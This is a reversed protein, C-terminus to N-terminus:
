PSEGLSLRTLRDMLADKARAGEPTDLLRGRRVEDVASHVSGMREYLEALRYHLDARNPEIRSATQLAELALGWREQAQWLAAERQFLSSREASGTVFPKLRGLVDIAALARGASSLSAALQLGVDLRSPERALLRELAAIGEEARGLKFLVRVRVLQVEVRAQDEPSLADLLTMAKRADGLDAEHRVLLVEAERRVEDSPPFESAAQLLREAEAGKGHLILLGYSSTLPGPKEVLLREWAQTKEAIALGLPLSSWDGLRWAVKLEGLAQLPKGLRALAYAAAVHVRADDPRLFLVRNAWALAELADGRAAADSAVNSYLVWDAPHRDILPLAVARVEKSSPKSRIADALAAEAVRHKPLGYVLGAVGLAALGVALWVGTRRVPVRPTRESTSALLGAVVAVSAGLAELEFAFDFLEHLAVGVVALAVYRELATARVARWVRWVAVAALALLAAGLPLGVESAWQLAFNEPYTFTLLLEITQFRSFGLEFAGVGMGGRWFELAGNALMPWLYVKTAQLKELSSVTDAREVLREFSLLGAVGITAAIAVWPLVARLSGSRRAFFAAGVLGWTAVFTAVGGRSYSLFVGIGCAFAALAWGIADDREEAALALALAVTGSFALFAALHNTNWFPTVFPVATTKFEYVGFLASESVLLHFLGCLAISAGTLALVRFLRRRVGPLRGLQFATIVLGTLGCLRAIARATAPADMSIPRLRDLGLPVLAFDRLEAAVPSAARQLSEPLPVLQMLAIALVALPLWLLPHWGWRRHNKAAGIGWLALAGCGTALLLGRAWVTGGFTWPLAVLAVALLAESAIWFRSSDSTPM